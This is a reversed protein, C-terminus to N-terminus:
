FRPGAGVAAPGQQARYYAQGYAHAALLQAYAITVLVGVCLAILGAAAIMAGVLGLLLVMLYDGANRRVLAVIEGVELGANFSGTAATRAVAAPTFFAVALSIPLTLCNAALTAGGGDVGLQLVSSLATAPLSWIFGVGFARLGDVFLGGLDEWEPLPLDTGSTAVQKTIRMAFGFVVLWGFIPILLLLAGILLKSVWKPDQFVYTFARGADM